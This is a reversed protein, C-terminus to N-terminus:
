FDCNMFLTKEETKKKTKLNMLSHKLTKLTTKLYKLLISKSLFLNFNLTKRTWIDWFNLKKVM